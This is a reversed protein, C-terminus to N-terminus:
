YLRLLTCSKNFYILGTMCNHKTKRARASLNQQLHTLVCVSVIKKRFDNTSCTPPTKYQKEEYM